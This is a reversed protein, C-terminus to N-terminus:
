TDEAASTQAAAQLGDAEGHVVTSSDLPEEERYHVIRGGYLKGGYRRTGYQKASRQM